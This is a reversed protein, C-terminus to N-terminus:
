RGDRIKEKIGTSSYGPFYPYTVVRVGKSEMFRRFKETVHEHSDSEALVDVGIKIANKVPSYEDQAVVADVFRLNRVVEMRAEFPVVPRPKKEMVAEDTLVGVVLRDGLAKANKLAELHGRHIIDCVCYWYVLILQTM